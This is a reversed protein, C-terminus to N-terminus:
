FTIEMESWWLRKGSEGQDEEKPISRGLIKNQDLKSRSDDEPWQEVEDSCKQDKIYCEISKIWKVIQIM